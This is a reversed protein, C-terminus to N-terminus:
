FRTPRLLGEAKQRCASPVEPLLSCAREPILFARLAGTKSIVPDEEAKVLETLTAPFVASAPARAGLLLSDPWNKNIYVLKDMMCDSMRNRRLATLIGCISFIREAEIESGPMAFVALFCVFLHPFRDKYERWWNYVNTVTSKRTVPDVSIQLARFAQLEAELMARTAAQSDKPQAFLDNPDYAEQEASAEASANMDNYAGTMM